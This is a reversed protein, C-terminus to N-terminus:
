FSAYNLDGKGHTILASRRPHRRSPNIVPPKPGKKARSAAIRAEIEEKTLM